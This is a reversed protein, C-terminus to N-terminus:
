VNQREGKPDFFVSSVIEAEIVSGDALPAFVREGMRNLGGKVVGMAFSYGLSNHLYSSTVHGVMTMPIAQKTNFVLQAGEPLWKNPDIPKLGVLQKRQDRVCDERNMGRWGIWSFPKNRGVCWGMNLDDPTMSSDTDQGVIIFGKEARLVHMTETGYPTLNYKKGADVIKELVGMAYDAQVNVEYSLEGTFSIRFIRAPVGGVLAEKWTMFPFAENSLDADTVESLLKRSNPGSLTMTAWHDTVSTFYVKLDPWETQHYIELWQLVRAAGGTTTTMVFHNDALCATVGDDFVMGDEKCMLGYRAKGVDLKTWANTYIRNLFERSDPGQIDIKGLTSADLLGVSDRVAKCERKVAAHMDEGSKPFYWPRKWQGVDEFEAGNKLHWQHLATYRVPEFIHGCHRGAVAGFTVPTYNPRFMTTGMQPITVNLSRAAIALGNVNGLKGQDTGFGLATYRKVHEVSEFGERTALEIAAATVDNQLDVFQKPARATNKEHPVQFLALTPEELRTLAKPLTAEVAGFGAESAARVGGEFGDALSDGLGYVGNIGGVCVRKQPAEGPVFGLIDERWIPKGGLHSALHVVPSYGGSSAVIDCDLWEGPSTVKHGKVDIAAVRAATVHKTGRAEIVASGTLIRIGKARAEEVLAGRPNSRADAVAVVQLGADLWDLAVRYAHDNNTSLVLKKGPAVGYRRVYTSVAGALMNGPVDNNGYVLPREHAGTALVVRKARVRHIRQRVQGIPARDGLHDTLREHITLFNHDHYGNVTARPLLLVDPTNKLEAIVSAVWETAPKGDLSERSDLLSGGFEEQEDALIVRAGSRAAALAAALGAPGAGVILVDCHQNMYDYTDPDNETPSRGLGAAKRIYKEYTMWFSQPYMFTKYYFGPPMLKGGVKGLIGMMDNNVSPWGNTSTAVLGQYLAQQTARVNPIQTAETAGIQLVANPEEAGAAFIGRPRSYKFSRGIIDVGNALLAAALSDGEFGKYSQGNFTFTLVKNRDIRGGSSLRNIQSM